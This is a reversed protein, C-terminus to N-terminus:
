ARAYMGPASHGQFYVQDGGYGGEPGHFFHNQGVEYLTAASAFSSLHGGIGEARRNARVVMVAANWRVLADIRAELHLDGPYPPQAERPVTNIYPTTLPGAEVIGEREAAIRLRRLLREVRAPDGQHIVYELSALWEQLEVDLQGDGDNRRLDTAM